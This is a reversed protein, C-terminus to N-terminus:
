AATALEPNLPEVSKRFVDESAGVAAASMREPAFLERALRSVADADVADILAITDDMSLLPVGMLLSSGLRNMRALTSEM